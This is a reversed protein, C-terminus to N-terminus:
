FKFEIGASVGQAWLSKSKRLAEPKEPGILTAFPNYAIAVSQTPNIERDIQSTARLVKSVYLFSYGVNFSLCENWQYGIKVDAEPIYAFHTRKHHGSNTGLALYGGEFEQNVTFLLFDNTTLSGKIIAEEYMAGLAVKAKVDVYFCNYAYKLGVGVQGGYFNNRANFEDRTKFTDPIAIYPSSTKFRVQEDFNWYRFGGILTIDFDCGGWSVPMLGNLEAGQMKSSLKLEATGAFPLVPAGPFAIFISDELGTLVNFYPITLTPSGPLGDSAVSRRSSTTPFFLYSAEVGFCHDDDLWMGATLRGGSRWKNKIKNGGLVVDTGNSVVLDIIKPADQIKWYLYEASVWTQPSCTDPCPDCCPDWAAAQLETGLLTGALMVSFVSNFLNKKM